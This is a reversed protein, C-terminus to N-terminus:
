FTELVIYKLILYTQLIGGGPHPPVFTSRALPSTPTPEQSSLMYVSTGHRLLHQCSFSDKSSFAMLALCLDLNAAKNGTITVAALYSFVFM